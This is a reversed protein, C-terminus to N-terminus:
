YLLVMPSYIHFRRALMIPNPENRFQAGKYTSKSWLYHSSILSWIKNRAITFLRHYFCIRDHSIDMADTRLCDEIKPRDTTHQVQEIWKGTKSYQVRRWVEVLKSRQSRSGKTAGKEHKRWGRIRLRSICKTLGEHSTCWPINMETASYKTLWWWCPVFAFYRDIWNM